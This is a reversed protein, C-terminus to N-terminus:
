AAEKQEGERYEIFREAGSKWEEVKLGKNKGYVRLWSTFRRQSLKAWDPNETLYNKYLENKDYRCNPQFEKSFEVFDECTENILQKLAMNQLPYPCLGKELYLQLCELMFTDFRNWEERSWGEFFSHGFEDTPRHNKNYHDTYEIVFQRDIASDDIGKMVYNTSCILKPSKEYPLYIEDKNKREITIGDSIVSFLKEFPFNKDLDDFALVNCDVGVRQFAFNKGPSFTRGDLIVTKRLKGIGRITLGKGSRGSAGDSIIEDILLIAKEEGAKKKRYLMYGIATRLSLMRAGDKGVANYLFDEYESRLVVEEYERSIIENEWICGQLKEYPHLYKSDETVEVFGNTFFFFSSENTDECFGIPKTILFEFFNETFIQATNKIILDLVMDRNATGFESAPIQNLYNMVVYEKVEAPNIEHVINEVIRVFVYKREIRIKCFGGEELLRKIRPRSLKLREKEFYWIKILPKVWGFREALHYLSGLTVRGDYDKVLEDFKKNLQQETDSYNENALSMEVFYKRGEEGYPVLAFGIRYWEEYCNSPLTKSLSELASELRESDYHSPEEKREMKPTREKLTTVEIEFYKSIVEILKEADIYPPLERPEDYYFTYMGGSEHMSPPLVTQCNKWRVEVHKCINKGKPKFKYVAKEGGFKKSLIGKDDKVRIYIHFGEGSGSQIVWPYKEPLELACILKDLFEYDEVIDLDLNRVDDNGLVVSIGTSNSWDMKEIDEETQKESQWKDWLIKPRKGQIPLVNFGFEQHYQLGIEKVTSM